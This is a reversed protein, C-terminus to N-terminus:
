HRALLDMLRMRHLTTVPYKPDLLRAPGFDAEVHRMNAVAQEFEPTDGVGKYLAVLYRRPATFSPRLAVANEAHRIAKAYQSAAAATMCCFFEIFARADGDGVMDLAALSRQRATRMEGLALETNSLFAHTLPSVPNSALAMEALHRSTKKSGGSLYELHSLAALTFSSQPARRLADELLGHVDISDPLFADTQHQFKAMNRLFSRWSLYQPHPEYEYALKLLHDGETLSARDFRFILSRGRAAFLSACDIIGLQDRERDLLDLVNEVVQASIRYVGDDELTALSALWHERQSLIRGTTPHQLAVRVYWKEFSKICSIVVALGTRPATLPMIGARQLPEFIQFDSYELLARIAHSTVGAAVAEADLSSTRGLRFFVAPAFRSSRFADGPPTERGPAPRSLTSLRRSRIWEEFEPDDINLDGFLEEDEERSATPLDVQLLSSELWVKERDAQLLAGHPGLARRIDTL